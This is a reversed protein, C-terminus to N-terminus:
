GLKVWAGASRGFFGGGQTAIPEFDTGDALIIDGDRPKSPAVHLEVLRVNEVQLFQAAIERLEGLIYEATAEDVADPPERPEYSM